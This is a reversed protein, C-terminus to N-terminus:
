EGARRIKGRIELDSGEKRKIVQNWTLLAKELPFDGEAEM